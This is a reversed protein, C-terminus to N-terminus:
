HRVFNIKPSQRVKSEGAVVGAEHAVKEGEVQEVVRKALGLGGGKAIAAAVAETGFSSLTDGFGSGEKNDNDEDGEEQCFGHERMPKLMEQLLMGEFQQAADTLKRHDAASATAPQTASALPVTGAASIAFNM